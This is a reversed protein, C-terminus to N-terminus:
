AVGVVAAVGVAQATKVKHVTHPLDRYQMYCPKMKSDQSPHSAQLLAFSQSLVTSCNTPLKLLKPPTSPPPSSSSTSSNPSYAHLYIYVESAHMVRTIHALVAVCAYCLLILSLM